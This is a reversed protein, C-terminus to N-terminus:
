GFLSRQRFLPRSRRRYLSRTSLLLLSVALVVCMTSALCSQAPFPGERHWCKSGSVIGSRNTHPAKRWPRCVLLTLLSNELLWIFASPAYLIVLPLHGTWRFHLENFMQTPVKKERKWVANQEKKAFGERACLLVNCLLLLVVQLNGWRSRVRTPEHSNLFGVFPFAIICQLQVWM